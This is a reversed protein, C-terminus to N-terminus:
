KRSRIKQRYLKYLEEAAIRTRAVVNKQKPFCYYLCDRDGLCIVDGIEYWFYDSYLSYCKGASQTYHLQGDCGDLVFGDPGHKLRGNGVMYLSKYDVILGIEVETDLAYTGLAIEERVKVREWKYWDPIHAFETEGEEASLRGYEDLNWKKGCSNCVLSTGRGETCGEAGCAPCKYLIRDLGDARFDEEIRIKNEYQWRFYDFSFAGALIEDIREASLTELEVPTALCELKAKVKVARKQLNNYLPDRAFSGYATIMVVPVKLIKLVSGIKEPLPTATGDFSYSAEPYMLVSIKNNHLSYKIDSILSYDSVFKQTPICGLRRMLGEKGVLGDSTCVICYRRPYLIKSAIELDLFSSHNMLILWPGTGARELQGPDAEYEFDVDRLDPAAAIRMVTQLLFSPKLPKRHPPRPLAMVEAYSKSCTKIKM